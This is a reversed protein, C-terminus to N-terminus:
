TDRASLVKEGKSHRLSWTGNQHNEGCQFWCWLPKAGTGGLTTATFILVPAWKCLHLCKVAPEPSFHMYVYLLKNYM